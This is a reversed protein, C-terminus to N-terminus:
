NLFDKIEYARTYAHAGSKDVVEIRFYSGLHAKTLPFAAGDIYGDEGDKRLIERGETLVRISAAPSTRVVLLGNEVYAKEITPGSSVYANGKELADTIGEYTFSEAAIM